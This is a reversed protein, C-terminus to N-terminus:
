RAQLVGMMGYEAHELIHCHYMWNGPIEFRAALQLRTKKPVIITDKNALRQPDADAANTSLLQFVVGHVHFPHDMESDNAVELHTVVDLSM